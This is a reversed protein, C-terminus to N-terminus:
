YPVVVIKVTEEVRKQSLIIEELENLPVIPNVLKPLKLSPKRALQIATLLDSKKFSRSGIIKLQKQNIASVDILAKNIHYGAVIIRGKLKALNISLSVASEEGAVEVIRDFKKDKSLRFAENPSIAEIDIEKCINRRYSSPEVVMVRFNYISKLVQATLLGLPGGGIIIANHDCNSIDLLDIINLSVALPEILCGEFDGIYDPLIEVQLVPVKLLSAFGGDTDIGIVLLNPCLNKKDSKCCVCKGCTIIPDIIVHKNSFHRPVKEGIAEIVGVVEHGPIVPYKTRSIDGSFLHIDTGCVGCAKVNILVEEPLLENYQEFNQVECIKLTKPGTLYLCQHKM